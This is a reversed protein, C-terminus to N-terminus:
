GEGAGTLVVVGRAVAQTPSPGTREMDLLFNRAHDFGSTGCDSGGSGQLRNSSGHFFAVLTVTVPWAAGIARILGGKM